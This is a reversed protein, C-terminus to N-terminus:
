GEVGDGEGGEGERTYGREEEGKGDGGSMAYLGGTARVLARVLAVRPAWLLAEVMCFLDIVVYLGCTISFVTM